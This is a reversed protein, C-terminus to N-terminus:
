RSSRRRRAPIPYLQECRGDRHLRYIFAGTERAVVTEIGSWCALFTQMMEFKTGHGSILLLRAGRDILMQKWAPKKRIDRLKDCTVLIRGRRTQGMIWAPDPLRPDRRYAEFHYKVDLGLARLAEPVHNGTSRDFYFKLGGGKRDRRRM